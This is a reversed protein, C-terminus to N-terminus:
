NATVTFSTRRNSAKGKETDNDAIPKTEGFGVYALRNANIGKSILYDYVAKARNESLVMNHSENGVNDTHGEISINLSPNQELLKLLKNLESQSQPQLDYKDTDFFVNKLIVKGGKSIPLLPINLLFPLQDSEELAFHDSYFLYGAHNVNLAYVKGAPLPILFEGDEPNSFSNYVEENTELDILEFRAAIPKHTLSDYVVGKVYTVPLPRAESHLEFAYIDFSGFGGEMNSSFYALEGNTSVMLSNEDNLTNIPYGLNKPRSWNGFADKQTMFLDLGGMGPHGNSSFYLTVGDPHILVTEERLPSNIIEPLKQAKTWHNNPQRVAVFIDQNQDARRKRPARIFYITRGDASLSPQSEWNVSNISDGLNMPESWGTSIRYSIFLDCSGYGSRGEGYKGYLDCATFVLTSGDASISAAGENYVTNIGSLRKAPQWVNDDRKIAYFLDDQLGDPSREEATRRTFLMLGDDATLCPLYEPDSTNINSGLNIPEFPVPNNKSKIAFDCDYIASKSKLIRIKDRDGSQLYNEFHDKAKAYEGRDKEFAGLFYFNKPNENPDIKVAMYLSEIAGDNDGNEFQVRSLLEWAEFFQDDRDLAKKLNDFALEDQRSNFEKYADEYYNIAKKDNSHYTVQAFIQHPILVLLLLLISKAKLKIDM